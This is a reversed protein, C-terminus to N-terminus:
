FKLHKKRLFHEARFIAAIEQADYIKGNLAMAVVNKHITQL